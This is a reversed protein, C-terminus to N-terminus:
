RRSSSPSGILWQRRMVMNCINTIQAWAVRTFFHMFSKMDSINVPLQREQMLVQGAQEQKKREEMAKTQKLDESVPLAADGRTDADDRLRYARYVFQRETYAM